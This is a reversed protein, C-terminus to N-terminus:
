TAIGLAALTASGAIGDVVLGKDAQFKRIAADSHPGVAGDVQIDYGKDKLAQQVARIEAMIAGDSAPGYIGDIDLGHYSQLRKVAYLTAPGFDDDVELDYGNEDQYGMARLDRQLQGVEPGEDDFCLLISSGGGTSPGPAPSPASISPGTALGLGRLFGNAIGVCITNRHAMNNWINVDSQRDIFFLEHLVAVANTNRVIALSGVYTATDPKRGRNPWLGGGTGGEAVAAAVQAGGLTTNAAYFCEDGTGGGANAHLEMVADVNNDNAFQARQAISYGRTDAGGLVTHGLSRLYPIIIASAERIVVEESVIGVAGTGDQHGEPIYLKAM